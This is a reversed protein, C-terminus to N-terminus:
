WIAISASYNQETYEADWDIPVLYLSNGRPDSQHFAKLNLERALRNATEMLKATAKEHKQGIDENCYREDWKHLKKSITQLKKIVNYENSNM